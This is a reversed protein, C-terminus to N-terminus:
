ALSDCLNSIRGTFELLQADTELRNTIDFLNGLCHLHNGGGLKGLYNKGKLIEPIKWPVKQVNSLM